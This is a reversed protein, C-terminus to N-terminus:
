IEFAEVWAMDKLGGAGDFELPLWALPENGKLGNPSQGWRNGTWVMLGNPLTIIFNQQSRTVSVTDVRSTHNQYLCGQNPTDQPAPLSSVSPPYHGVGEGWTKEVGGPPPAVCAVNGDPHLSSNKLTWPGLPHPATHVIVGAGQLCYCCCHDFLAFYTGKHELLSPAEVFYPEFLPSVVGDSHMYDATLRDIGMYHSCTYILYATPSASPPNSATDVFVHYDGCGTRTTNVLANSLTFPGFPTDGLATFYGQYFPRHEVNAWLIYKGSAAHFVVQPRFVVGVPRSTWPIAYGEFRWSGQSLDPSSFTSINHDLKYGCDDPTADCGLPLPAQCLGYSMCTMFWRGNFLQISGDACDLIQHTTSDTLPLSNNFFYGHTAAPLLLAALLLM